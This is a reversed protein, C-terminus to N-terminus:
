SISTAEWGCVRAWGIPFARLDACWAGTPKRSTSFHGRPLHFRPSAGMSLSCPLRPMLRPRQRLCPPSVHGLAPRGDSKTNWFVHGHVTDEASSGAQSTPLAQCSSSCSSGQTAPSHPDSCTHGLTTAKPREGSGLVWPLQLAPLHQHWAPDKAGLGCREKGRAAVVAM